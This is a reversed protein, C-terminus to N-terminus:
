QALRAALVDAVKSALLDLDVPAGGDTGAAARIYLLGLAEGVTLADPVNVKAENVHRQLPERLLLDIDSTTLPM